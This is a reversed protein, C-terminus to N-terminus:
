DIIEWDINHYRCKGGCQRLKRSLNSIYHRGVADILSNYVINNTKDLIKISNIKAYLKSKHNKIEETSTTNGNDIINGDKDLYRFIHGKHTLREGRCVCCVKSLEFGTERCLDSVSGYTTNTTIDIVAKSSPSDAGTRGYMHNLKGKQSKRISEKVEDTLFPNYGGGKLNYGYRNNTTNFFEIWFSEKADLDEQTSAHDIVKWIFNNIGYKSLARTFYSCGSGYRISKEHQKKRRPFDKTQGIYRKNNIKNIAEYIVM